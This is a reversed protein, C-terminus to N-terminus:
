IPARAHRDEQQLKDLAQLGFLTLSYLPESDSDNERIYQRALLRDVSATKDDIHGVERRLTGCFERPAEALRRLVEKERFRFPAGEPFRLHYELAECLFSVPQGPSSSRPADANFSREAWSPTTPLGRLAMPGNLKNVIHIIERIVAIPSHKATRLFTGKTRLFSSKLSSDSATKEQGFVRQPQHLEYVNNRELVLGTAYSGSVAPCFMVIAGLFEVVLQRRIDSTGVLNTWPAEAYLEPAQRRMVVIKIPLRFGVYAGELRLVHMYLRDVLRALRNLYQCLRTQKAEGRRNSVAVRLEEDALMRAEVAALDPQVLEPQDNSPTAGDSANAV